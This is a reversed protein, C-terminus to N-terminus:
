DKKLKKCEHADDCLLSRKLKLRGECKKTLNSLHRIENAIGRIKAMTTQTKTRPSNATTHSTSPTDDLKPTKTPPEGDAESLSPLKIVPKRPQINARAPSFLKSFQFSLILFLIILFILFFLTSKNFYTKFVCKQQITMQTVCTFSIEAWDSMPFNTLIWDCSKVQVYMSGYM